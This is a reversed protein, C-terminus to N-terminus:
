AKRMPLLALSGFWGKSLLCFHFCEEGSLVSFPAGALSSGIMIVACM